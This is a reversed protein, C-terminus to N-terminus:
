KTQLSATRYSVLTDKDLQLIAKEIATLLINATLLCKSKMYGGTGQYQEIQYTYQYKDGNQGVTKLTAAFSGGSVKQTFLVYSGAEIKHNINFENLASKNMISYIEDISSIRTSFSTQRMWFIRERKAAKGEAVLKKMKADHSRIGIIIAGIAIAIIGYFIIYQM